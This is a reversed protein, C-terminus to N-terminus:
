TAKFNVKFKSVDVKFIAMDKTYHPGDVNVSITPAWDIHSINRITIDSWQNKIDKYFAKLKCIDEKVKALM